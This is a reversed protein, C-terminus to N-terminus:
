INKFHLEIGQNAIYKRIRASHKSFVTYMYLRILTVIVNCYNVLLGREHVQMKSLIETKTHRLFFVEKIPRLGVDLTVPFAM